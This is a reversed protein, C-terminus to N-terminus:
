SSNTDAPVEVLAEPQWERVMDEFATQDVKQAPLTAAKERVAAAGSADGAEDLLRAAVALHFYRQGTDQGLDALAVHAEAVGLNAAKNAYWLLGLRERETTARDKLFPYLVPFSEIITHQSAARYAVDSHDEEDGRMAEALLSFAPAVGAEAATRALPRYEPERDPNISIARALQFLARYDASNSDSEIRCVSEAEEAQVDVVGPARRLPDYLDAALLDCQTVTAGGTEVNVLGSAFGIAWGYSSMRYWGDVFGSDGSAAGMEILTANVDDKESALALIELLWGAHDDATRGDTVDALNYERTTQALNSLGYGYGAGLKELLSPELSARDEWVIRYQSVAERETAATEESSANVLGVWRLAEALRFRTDNNDPYAETAVRLADASLELIPAAAVADTDNVLVGQWFLSLGRLRQWIGANEVSGALAGAMKATSELVQQAAKSDDPADTGPLSNYDYEVLTFDVEGMSAAVLDRPASVATASIVEVARRYLGRAKSDSHIPAQFAAGIMKMAEAALRFASGTTDGRIGEALELYENVLDPSWGSAGGTRRGLEILLDAAAKPDSSRLDVIRARELETRLADLLPSDPLREALKNANEMNFSRRAAPDGPLNAITGGSAVDTTEPTWAEVAAQVALVREDPLVRALQARRHAVFKGDRERGSARYLREALAFEFMADALADIDNIQREGWHALLQHAAPELGKQQRVLEVLAPDIPGGAAIAPMLAAPMSTGFRMADKAIVGPDIEGRELAIRALTAGLIRSAAPDAAAAGQLLQAFADDNVLERVSAGAGQEALADAARLVLNGAGGSCQVSKTVAAESVVEGLVRSELLPIRWAVAEACGGASDSGDGSSQRVRQEIKLSDLSADAEADLLSRMAVLRAADVPSSPRLSRFATTAVSDTDWELSLANGDARLAMASPNAPLRAFGSPVGTQADIAMMINRDDAVAIGNEAAYLGVFNSRLVVKDFKVSWTGDEGEHFASIQGEGYTAVVDGDLTFATAKPENWRVLRQRAAQPPPADPSGEATPATGATQSEERISKTRETVVRGLRAIEVANGSIIAVRHRKPDGAIWSIGDALREFPAFERGSGTTAGGGASPDDADVINIWSAVGEKDLLAYATGAPDAAAIREVPADDAPADCDTAPSSEDFGVGGTESVRRWGISAGNGIAAAYLLSGDAHRFLLSKGDGGFAVASICNSHGIAISRFAVDEEFEGDAGLRYVLLDGDYTVGAIRVADESQYIAVSNKAVYLRLKQRSLPIRYSALLGAASIGEDSTVDTASEITLFGGNGDFSTDGMRAHADAPLREVSGGGGVPMRFSISVGKNQVLASYAPLGDVTTMQAAPETLKMGVPVRENWLPANQRIDFATLQQEEDCSGLCSLTLLVAGDPTLQAGSVGTGTEMLAIRGDGVDVTVVRGDVDENVLLIIRGDFFGLLKLISISEAGAASAIDAVSVAFTITQTEPDVVIVQDPSDDLKLYLAFRPDLNVPSLQDVAVKGGGRDPVPIVTPPGQGVAWLAIEAKDTVIAVRSGDPAILDPENGLDSGTPLEFSGLAAGTMADFLAIIKNGEVTSGDAAKRNLAYVRFRGSTGTWGTLGSYSLFEPFVPYEAMSQRALVRVIPDILWGDRRDGSPAILGQWLAGLLNSAIDWSGSQQLVSVRDAVQELISRRFAEEARQRELAMLQKQAEIERVRAAEAAKAQEEAELQAAIARQTEEDARAKEARALAAQQMAQQQAAIALATQEEARAAEAEALAAQEEARAREEGARIEAQRAAEAAEREQEALKLAKEAELRQAERAVDAAAREQNARIASYGAFITLPTIVLLVVVAALTVFRNRSKQRQDEAERQKEAAEARRSEALFEAAASFDGGYRKAWAATPRETDWWNAISALTLGSILNAERRKYREAADVLRRWTDASNIERQLWNAFEDWQRILSEHSIDILTDPRLADPRPPMLFNRGPARFAEVIERVAIEDGGAIEVLEGFETPRRVAEALSSGATLARFVAGAIERHEPLLEDLIERGHAALAGSLGGVAEYDALTLVVPEGRSRAAALSWLRNLVHQMLPLQDARRVLRELQHGTDDEWPAFSTLDNLLRNVLAPEISFGCVAAPGVIAERVEERNMRPTLYLGNNIAEALGDILAAAGLYESRMTIAVYIRAESMPAKASELLLAVFAEAEEREAYASYRFLEEFQDVLLLLNTGEPLNESCWEVVSRPGRALFARLMKVDEEPPPTTPTDSAARLLAEALNQIPRDGPRFEIILWRSGAQYLLGIELADLLGTKVLSSKGSGSAGLVALFRTAALRDVMDDVCGERGFFIDTEERTFSRLGPYPLRETATSM